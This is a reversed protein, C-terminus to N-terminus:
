IPKDRIRLAYGIYTTIMHLLFYIILIMLAQTVSFRVFPYVLMLGGFIYDTQDFPFWSEGSNKGLRRKFFSEVADGLLAGLGMAGTAILIFGTSEASSAIFRYQFLGVLLAFIVGVVLGRWTKSDGFIRKGRWSYGLDIPTQWRNLGPIQSAIVPAMNAVGAPLFFWFAEWWDNM